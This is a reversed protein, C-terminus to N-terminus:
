FNWKDTSLLMRHFLIPSITMNGCVAKKQKLEIIEGPQLPGLLEAIRVTHKRWTFFKLQKTSLIDILKDFEARDKKNLNLRSRM